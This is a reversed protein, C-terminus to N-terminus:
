LLIGATDTLKEIDPSKEVNRHNYSALIKDKYGVFAGPM